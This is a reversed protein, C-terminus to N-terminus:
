KVEEILNNFVYWLYGRVNPYGMSSLIDIYKRVQVHYEENTKGFKFDVVIMEKGDYMVRDPRRSELNNHTTDFSLINCENFIQWKDSFWYAVQPNEFRKRLMSTLGKKTVNENYLIGDSELQMLANDIDNTTKITSFISHLINGLQIYNNNGKDEDDSKTFQISENSQRFSVPMKFTEFDFKQSDAESNIVNLTDKNKKTLNDGSLNGYEFTIINNKDSDFGELRSNSLHGAVEKLSKEIIYSRIGNTGRKGFIFLNKSARTFAVYLLNLNDVCNQFHEKQYDKEYITNCMQTASYDVPIIPLENFPKEDPICWLTSSSKELKWDCFPMIVHDFELGKSKHITILRIGDIDNNQITKEHINDDWEKVFSDIDGVNENLYNNIQDYFACVYANQNNLKNLLFIMYIQEALDILPMSKLTEINNVFAKPLYDWIDASRILFENDERGKNLIQKQYTKVLNAVAIRDEPHMIIHMADIIVNVASSADLRFAENSVFKVEPMVTLFYDAIQQITKNSRVIIAIKNSKINNELLYKITESTKELMSNLYDDDPLLEIHVLGTNKEGNPIQQEVDAYALRLQESDAPSDSSLADCEFKAATTFFANNFEIINKESRYNFGLRNISLVKDSNNFEKDIDNLLRWDGSRWRYISQKVDGVILNETDKHSMCELLLVKFNKWQIISTDQFEDIMIHELQTGIKEFIFPSDSNEILANLLNQTDSLLFRNAESNMERVKTEICNLLRLQSLHRLTICASKYLKINDTRIRETDTLIHFLNDEVINLLHSGEQQDKKYLWKKPDGLCEVIRKTLLKDDDYIGKQLKNFYGCIGTPGYAFDTVQVENDQLANYFTEISLSIKNKFDQILKRLNNTYLNFFNDKLLIANLEKNRTKYIDKFINEGFTKIKGIVNWGKDDDINDNIYDMIWGLIKSNPELGEILEDVAQQEVQYDNLGVRLNATLDLERALNRLVSQFFTDITEVRFYNYNHILNRLAIGAQQSAFAVSIDLDKTIKEIYNNSDPLLKWIGYLQSLIRMKMEETAKNTFTVALISRYCYPDHILLKIYEIALTFTKGSGASAKYVKLPQRILTMMDDNM